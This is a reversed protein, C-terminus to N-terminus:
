WLSYGGDVILNQGVIQPDSLRILDVLHKGLEESDLFRGSPIHNPMQERFFETQQRSAVVGLTLMNFSFTGAYQVAYQKILNHLAAKSAGYAPHKTLVIESGPPSYVNARPAVLGYMSGIAVFSGGRTVKSLVGEFLAAAGIVNVRFFREWDAYNFPGLAQSDSTPKSDIGANFVVHGLPPLKSFLQHLSEESLLDLQYDANEDNLDAALVEFGETRLAEQWIPGLLGSSGVLLVRSNGNNSMTQPLFSM